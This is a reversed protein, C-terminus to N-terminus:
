VTACYELTSSLHLRRYAQLRCVMNCTRPSVCPDSPRGYLIEYPSFGTTNNVSARYAHLVHPLLDPWNGPQEAALVAIQRTLSRIYNEVKGNGAPRGVSIHYKHTKYIAMVEKFLASEFTTGQDTVLEYPAGMRSFVESVLAQAVETAQLTRLPIAEPWARDALAQLDEPLAEDLGIPPLRPELQIDAQDTPPVKEVTASEVAVVDDPDLPEFAQLDVLGVPHVLAVVSGRPLVVHSSSTNELELELTGPAFPVVGTVLSCQRKDLLPSPQVLGLTLSNLTRDVEQDLAGNPCNLNRSQFSSPTADFNTRGANRHGSRIAASSLGVTLHQVAYEMVRPLPTDPYARRAVRSVRTSWEDLTESPDQRMTTLNNMETWAYIPKSYSLRLAEDLGAFTRNAALDELLSQPAAVLGSSLLQFRQDQTLHPYLGVLDDFSAKYAEYSIKGDFKPVAKRLTLM